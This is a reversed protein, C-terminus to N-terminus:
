ATASKPVFGTERPARTSVINAVFNRALVVADFDKEARKRAGLSLRALTARDRALLIIADAIQGVAEQDVLIGDVGSDIM